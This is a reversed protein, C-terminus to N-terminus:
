RVALPTPFPAPHFQTVDLLAMFDVGHRFVRASVIESMGTNQRRKVM